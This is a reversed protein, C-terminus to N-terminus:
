ANARTIFDMSQIGYSRSSSWQLKLNKTLRFPAPLCFRTLEALFRICKWVLNHSIVISFLFESNQDLCCDRALLLELQLQWFGRHCLCCDFELLFFAGLWDDFSSGFGVLPNPLAEVGGNKSTLFPSALDREIKILSRIVVFIYLNSVVTPSSPNQRHLNAM